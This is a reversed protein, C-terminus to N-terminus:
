FELEEEETEEMPLSEVANRGAQVALHALEDLQSIGSLNLGTEILMPLNMGAVVRINEPHKLVLKYAENFPTGGKLDVLILLKHAVILKEVVDTLEKTFGGIGSENLEVYSIHHNVGAIM